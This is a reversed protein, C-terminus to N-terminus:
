ASKRWFMQDGRIFSTGKYEISGAVAERGCPICRVLAPWKKNIRKHVIGLLQQSELLLYVNQFLTSKNDVVLCFGLRYKVSDAIKTKSAIPSQHLIVLQM